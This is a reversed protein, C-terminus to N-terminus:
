GLVIWGVIAGLVLAFGAALAIAFWDPELARLIEGARARSERRASSEVVAGLLRRAVLFDGRDYAALGEEYPTGHNQFTM